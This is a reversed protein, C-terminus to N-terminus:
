HTLLFDVVGELDKLTSCEKVLFCFPRYCSMESDGSGWFSPPEPNLWILRRCRQAIRKLLDTRPDFHNNRGDGLILVTTRRRIGPLGLRTFNELAHGYDTKGMKLPLGRGHQLRDLAEEVPHEKFVGTVEVLNSCFLYSRIRALAENLSYLFLLMFRSVNQVSRSVDCLVMIEPRDRKIKKWAPHFPVGQYAINRRLTRKLSLLGRRGCKRRRVHVASLRRAMKRVLPRMRELDRRELEALPTYMLHREYLRNTEQEAFIAYQQDVFTRVHELLDERAHALHQLRQPEASHARIVHDLAEIGMEQLIRHAYASKQTFFWIASINVAQAARRLALSLGLRDGTLLLDPLSIPERGGNGEGTRGQGGAQAAFGDLSFIREFCAEFLRKEAESKALTVALAQKFIERDTFGVRSVAQFADLTEAPSIPIGSRRLATILDLLPRTM